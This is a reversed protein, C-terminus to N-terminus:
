GSMYLYRNLQSCSLLGQSTAGASRCPHMITVLSAVPKIQDMFKFDKNDRGLCDAVRPM